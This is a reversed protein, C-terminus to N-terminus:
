AAVGSRCEPVAPESRGARGRAMKRQAALWHAGIIEDLGVPDFPDLGSGPYFTMEGFLPKGQHEYFDVRVFDFDRALTEAAEIMEGLSSPAPPDCDGNPASVRRWDRDFLIWRHNQGRGLHVQVYTAVGGFVYIKFDTPLVDGDGIYPEALLGREIHQYLWEGWFKGYSASMWLRARIRIKILHSDDDRVIAYQNCGHRSKLVFPHPWSLREPLRTGSWLNPIVWEPGLLNAVHEKACVKDALPPMRMDRESLKRIQVLETFKTPNEYDPLCGHRYLYALGVRSKANLVETMRMLM